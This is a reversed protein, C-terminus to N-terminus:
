KEPLIEQNDSVRYVPYPAVNDEFWDHNFCYAKEGDECPEDISCAGPACPSCFTARTYYPSKLIFIDGYSDSSAKYEGDDFIFGLPEDAYVESSEFIKKCRDCRYDCCGKSPEYENDLYDPFDDEPMSYDEPSPANYDVLCDENGCEPCTPKGYDGESSDAWAQLCQNQNIVGYRIGTETDINTQGMGYDIGRM